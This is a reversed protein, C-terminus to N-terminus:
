KKKKLLLCSCLAGAFIESRVQTSKLEVRFVNLLSTNSSQFRVCNGNKM